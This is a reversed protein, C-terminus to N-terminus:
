IELLPFHLQLPKVCKRLLLASFLGRSVSGQVEQMGRDALGACPAEASGERVLVVRASPCGVPRSGGQPSLSFPWSMLGISPLPLVRLPGQLFVLRQPSELPLAGDPFWRGLRGATDPVCLFRHCRAAAIDLVSSSHPSGQPIGRRPSDLRDLPKLYDTLPFTSHKSKLPLYLIGKGRQGTRFLCACM